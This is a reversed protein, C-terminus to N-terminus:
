PLTKDSHRMAKFDRGVRIGLLTWFAAIMMGVAAVVALGAGTAMIGAFLSAGATDGARYVVTDCFHKFKYKSQPGVVTYLMNAAPNTIAFLAGRRLVQVGVIVALIPVFTIAGFGITALVPLVALTLAMGLRGVIHATLTIQIAITLLNVVLDIRAFVGTVTAPTDFHISVIKAQQLYLMAGTFTGLIMFGSIRALFPHKLLLRAGALIEGGMPVGPDDQTGLAAGSARRLLWMLCALAATLLLSSIIMLTSLGQSEVLQSTLFPGFIAGASGGAAILGFLRAAQDGRWLDAMFSWFVSVVFLNFVSVWVFFVRALWPDDVDSQFWNRFVLINIIFFIYVLPLLHKRPVRSLIWGYLPVIALLSLFTALFLYQINEVGGEVALADRVPRLTYYAALVFFFYLFSGAVRTAEGPEISVWRRLAPISTSPVTDAEERSM